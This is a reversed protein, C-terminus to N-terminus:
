CRPRHALRWSACMIDFCVPRLVRERAGAGARQVGNSCLQIRCNLGLLLSHPAESMSASHATVAACQVSPM